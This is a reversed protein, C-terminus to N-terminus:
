PRDRGALLQHLGSIDFMKIGTADPSVADKRMSLTPSGRRLYFRSTLEDNHKYRNPPTPPLAM